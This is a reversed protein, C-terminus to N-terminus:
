VYEVGESIGGRRACVDLVALVAVLDTKALDLNSQALKKNITLGQIQSHSKPTKLSQM